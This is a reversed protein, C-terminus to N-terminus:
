ADRRRPHAALAVGLALLGAAGIVLGQGLLEHAWGEAAQPGLNDLLLATSAIRLGNVALTLPVALGFLVITLLVGPRFLGALFTALVVYALFTGSGSCAEAVVLTWGRFTLDSAVWTAEGDFPRVLNVAVVGSAQTLHPNLRDLLPMPIPVMLFFLLASWFRRRVAGVGWWSIALGLVAVPFAFVSVTFVGAISGAALIAAALPLLLSGLRGGGPVLPAPEEEKSPLLALVGALVPVLLVYSLRSVRAAYGAWEVLITSFVAGLLVLEVIRRLRTPRESM